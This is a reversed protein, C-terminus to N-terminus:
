LEPVAARDMILPRVLAPVRAVLDGTVVEVVKANKDLLIAAATRAPDDVGFDPGVAGDWDPCVYIYENPRPAHTGMALRHDLVSLDTKAQARHAEDLGPLHVVHTLGLTRFNPYADRLVLHTEEAQQHNDPGHLFVVHPRGGGSQETVPRGSRIAKVIFCPPTAHVQQTEM